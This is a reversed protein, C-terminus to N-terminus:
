HSLYADIILYRLCIEHCNLEDGRSLIAAIKAFSMNLHM